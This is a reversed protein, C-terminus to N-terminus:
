SNEINLLIIEIAGDKLHFYFRGKKYKLREPLKKDIFVNKKRYATLSFLSEMSTIKSLNDELTFSIKFQKKLNSNILFLLIGKKVKYLYGFTYENVPIFNLIKFKKFQLIEPYSKRLRACYQLLNMIKRSNNNWHLSTFDFLALKGYNLDKKPLLYLKCSDPDLGKNMPQIEGLEFGSNIFPITNPLFFNLAATFVTFKRKGQRTIARPTDHTEATALIPVYLYPLVEEFVRKINGSSWRPEEAWLNGIICHYGAKKAKKSNNNDLEEAILFFKKNYKFSKRIIMQELKEPLAHGMDIRAGDIGFNKQYYPLIDAIFKWLSINPKKFKSRSSKIVDFLAYPPQDPPLFKISHQPHDLHLRLFTADKWIPQPDNIVDSFGPVTTIGFEASILDLFNEIKEKKIKNVLKQWKTKNIKDPSFSFKKLHLHVESCNYIKNVYEPSFPVTPLGPIFPPKFDNEYEKKIWYFWDPHELILDNDRGATRPIFDIIIKIGLIHAAYSFAKFELELKKESFEGIMPDYLYKDLKLFNKASYPSPAEGKKHSESALMLPLLYIMNIGIKKLLPLLLLMRLITGTERLGYKNLFSLKGDGDFDFAMTTRIFAGYIVPSENNKPHKQKKCKQLLIYEEIVSILLDYPNVFYNKGSAENEPYVWYSPFPVNIDRRHEKLLVLIQELPNQKKM